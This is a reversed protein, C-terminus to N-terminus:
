VREMSPPMRPPVTPPGIWGKSPDLGRHKLEVHEQCLAFGECCLHVCCDNCPDAPLGYKARLKERFMCSYVWHCSVTMLVCYIFGQAVCLSQGEDLVVAIEGFTVCPLCCTIFCTAPNGGCELLGTSWKSQQSHHNIKM